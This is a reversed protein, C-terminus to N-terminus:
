QISCSSTVRTIIEPNQAIYDAGKYIIAGGVSTAITKYVSSASQAVLKGSKELLENNIAILSAILENNQETIVQNDSSMKYLVFGLAATSAGSLLTAYFYPLLNIRGQKKELLEKIENMDDEYRESFHKMSVILEQSNNQPYKKFKETLFHRTFVAEQALIFDLTSIQKYYLTDVIGQIFYNFEQDSDHITEKALYYVAENTIAFCKNAFADRIRKCQEINTRAFEATSDTMCPEQDQHNLVYTSFHLMPSQNNGYFALGMQGHLISGGQMIVSSNFRSNNSVIEHSNEMAYSISAFLLGVSM